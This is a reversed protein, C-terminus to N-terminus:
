GDGLLLKSWVGQANLGIPVPSASTTDILRQTTAGAKAQARSEASLLRTRTGSVSQYADRTAETIWRRMAPLGMSQNEPSRQGAAWAVRRGPKYSRHRPDRHVSM